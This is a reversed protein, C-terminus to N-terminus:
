QGFLSQFLQTLFDTLAQAYSDNSGAGSGGAGGAPHPAAAPHTANAHHAPAPHKTKGGGSLSYRAVVEDHDSAFGHIVHAGVKHLDKSRTHMLYDYTSRGHTGVNLKNDYAVDKGLVHYSDRNFDGGVVVDLGKKEFHKVLHDLKEMHTNWMKRRWATTAKHEGWAGSVLHTNMRVIEKGTARNKLKVWTIYRNPSVKAKGNHTKVFGSAEKKWVSKKWSIPNPIRLGGDHPMYHGWSPGLAKIASFYRKPSIENWGILDATHSAKRVDHVVKKQSMEPNSKVNLTATTFTNPNHHHRHHGIKATMSVM